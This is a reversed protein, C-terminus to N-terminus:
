GCTLSYDTFSKGPNVEQYTSIGYADIINQFGQTLKNNRNYTPPIEKTKM